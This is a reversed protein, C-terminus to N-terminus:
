SVNEASAWVNELEKAIDYHPWGTRERHTQLLGTVQSRRSPDQVHHGAAFVCQTSVITAGEEVTCAAIGCIVDVAAELSKQRSILEKMGGVAPTYELLLLKAFHHVQVALGAYTLIQQVSLQCLNAKSAATPNIWIPKFPLDALKITPLRRDHKKFCLSWEDLKEWMKASDDLRKHIDSRGNEEEKTSAYNM